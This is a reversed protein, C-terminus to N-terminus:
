KMAHMVHVLDPKLKKLLRLLVNATFSNDYEYQAPHPSMSLNYHIEVVPIEEHTTYHPGFDATSGTSSKHYTIVTVTHGAKRALSALSLTYVEVGGIHRPFFQHTLYVIHMNEEHPPLRIGHPLKLM